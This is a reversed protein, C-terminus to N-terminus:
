KLELIKGNELYLKRSCHELTAENHSIMIVTSGERSAINAIEKSIREASDKDLASTSEDFFFISKNKYFSRALSVRQRQGGSLTLGREGIRRDSKKNINEFVHILGAKDISQLIQRKNKENVIEGIAINEEITSNILFPEQPLYAINERWQQIDFMIDIGDVEITGSNPIHIGLLIDVLTTKGEGSKGLLGIFEGRKIKLNLSQFIKKDGYSFEVNKVNIEKFDNFYNQKDSELSNKSEFDTNENIISLEDNLKMISDKEIGVINLNIFVANLSPLLRIAAVLFISLSSLISSIDNESIVAYVLSISVILVLMFEIFYRPIISFLYLRTEAFAAKRAGEIVRKRFFDSIKLIKIEKLGNLTDTVADTFATLGENKIEGYKSFKTSFFFVSIALITGSMGASLLFLNFDTIILLIVIFSISILEAATRLLSIVTSTYDSCYGLILTTFQGSTKKLRSLYEQETISSILRSRLLIQRDFAVKLAYSNILVGAIIRLIFIMVLCSSAALIVQSLEFNQLFTFREQFSQFDLFIALVPGILGIGLIDLVGLFLFGFVLLPIKKKSKGFLRLVVKIHDLFDKITINM